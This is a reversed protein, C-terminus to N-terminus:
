LSICSRCSFFSLFFSLFSSYTPPLYAFLCLSKSLSIYPSPSLSRLYIVSHCLLIIFISFIVNLLFVFSFSSISVDHGFFSYSFHSSSIFLYFFLSPFCANFFDFYSWNTKLQIRVEITKMGNESFMDTVSARSPITPYLIEIRHFSLFVAPFILAFVYTFIYISIYLTLSLPFLYFLSMALSTSPSLSLPYLSSVLFLTMSFSIFLPPSFHGFLPFYLHHCAINDM